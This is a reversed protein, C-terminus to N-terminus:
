RNVTSSSRVVSPSTDAVDSGGRRPFRYALIVMMWFSAIGLALVTPGFQRWGFRGARYSMHTNGVRLMEVLGGWLHGSEVLAVSMAMSVFAAAVVAAGKEDRWPFRHSIWRAAVFAAVAYLALLPLYIGTEPGRGALRARADRVDAVDISHTRAITAFLMANCEDRTIPGGPVPIRRALRVDDYRIALEEAVRVDDVLHDEHAPDAPDLAAAREPPWECRDNMGDPMACGALAGVAATGAVLWAWRRRAVM